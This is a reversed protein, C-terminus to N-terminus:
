GSRRALNAARLDDDAYAILNGSKILDYLNQGMATLNGVTQPYEFMPLGERQLQQALNVMQWPDFRM